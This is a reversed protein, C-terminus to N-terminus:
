IGAKNHRRQGEANAVRVDLREHNPRAWETKRIQFQGLAWEIPSIAQRFQQASQPPRPYLSM